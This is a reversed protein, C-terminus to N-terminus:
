KMGARLGARQLSKNQLGAGLGAQQLSISENKSNSQCIGEFLLLAFLNSDFQCAFMM